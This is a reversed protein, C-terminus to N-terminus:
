FLKSSDLLITVPGDNVLAVTMSAQFIGTEVRTGKERAAHVFYEYLMRADEPGAADDFSPRRGRRCDGYLTFQSIVLLNGGTERVNRNMKRNEDPFVRLGLTKEVLYDADRVTDGKRIGLLVLLGEHIAGVTEGDVQVSASSVRQIVARM